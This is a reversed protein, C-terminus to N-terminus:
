KLSEITFHLHCLIYDTFKFSILLIQGIQFVSFYVPFIFLYIYSWKNSEWSMLFLTPSFSFEFFYHISVKLKIFPMFM